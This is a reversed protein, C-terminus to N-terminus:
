ADMDVLSDIDAYDDIVEGMTTYAEYVAQMNEKNLVINFTGTSPYYHMPEITLVLLLEGQDTLKWLNVSQATRDTM